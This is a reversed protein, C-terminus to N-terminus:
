LVNGNGAIREVRRHQVHAGIVHEVSLLLSWVRGPIQGPRKGDVALAFEGTFLRHLAMERSKVDHSRAPKIAGVTAVEDISNAAHGFFAVNQADDGILIACRCASEAQGLQYGIQDEGVAPADIMGGVTPDRIPELEGSGDDFVRVYLNL